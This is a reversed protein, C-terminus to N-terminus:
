VVHRLLMTRSCLCHARLCGLRMAAITGVVEVAVDGQSLRTMLQTMTNLPRIVQAMVTFIAYIIAVVGLILGATLLLRVLDHAAQSERYSSLAQELQVDVLKTLTGRVPDVAEYLGENILGTLRASSGQEIIKKLKAIMEGAAEIEQEAQTVLPREIEGIRSAKYSSWQQRIQEEAAQLANSGDPWNLAGTKLKNATDVVGVMYLESILKLSRLPVIRDEYMTRMRENAQSLAIWGTAAFAVLLVSLGILSILLRARVTGLVKAVFSM